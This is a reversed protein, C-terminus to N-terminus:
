KNRKKLWEYFGFFSLYNMNEPNRFEPNIRDVQEHYYENILEFLEKEM